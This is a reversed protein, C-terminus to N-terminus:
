SECLTWIKDIILSLFIASSTFFLHDILNYSHFYVILYFWFSVQGTTCKVCGGLPNYLWVPLPDILKQYWSFIMGPSGLNIFTTLILSIELAHLIM